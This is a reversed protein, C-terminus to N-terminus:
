VNSALEVIKEFLVRAYSEVIDPNRGALNCVDIMKEVCWAHKEPSVTPIPTIGIDFVLGRESALSKELDFSLTFDDILRHSKAVTLVGDVRDMASMILEVSSREGLLPLTVDTLSSVYNELDHPTFIDEIASADVNIM